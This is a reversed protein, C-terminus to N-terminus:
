FGMIKDLTNINGENSLNRSIKSRKAAEKVKIPNITPTEKLTDSNFKDINNQMLKKSRSEEIQTPIFVMPSVLISIKDGTDFSERYRDISIPGGFMELCYPPPAKTLTKFSGTLRKHLYSVLDCNSDKRRIKFSLVCNFSCFCGSVKFIDDKGIYKEPLCVPFTDFPHCCWWCAINTKLAKVIAFSDETIETPLLSICDYVITEKKYFSGVNENFHRVKEKEPVISTKEQNQQTSALSSSEGGETSPKKNFLNITNMKKIRDLSIPLHLIIIDEFSCSSSGVLGENNEFNIKKAKRGRKTIVKAESQAVM